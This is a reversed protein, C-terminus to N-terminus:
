GRQVPGSSGGSDSRRRDLMRACLVIGIGGAALVAGVIWWLRLGPAVEGLPVISEGALAALVGLAIDGIGAARLITATTRSRRVSPGATM